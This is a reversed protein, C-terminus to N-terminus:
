QSGSTNNAVLRGHMQNREPVDIVLNLTEAHSRQCARHMEGMLSVRSAYAQRFNQQGLLEGVERQSPLTQHTCDVVLSLRSPPDAAFAGCSFLAFSLLAAKALYNRANMANGRQDSGALGPVVLM